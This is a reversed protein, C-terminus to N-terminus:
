SGDTGAIVPADESELGVEELWQRRLEAKGGMMLAITEQSEIADDITVQALRRTAPDLITEKLDPPNMEGLGKFRTVIGNPHKALLADREDEDQAYAYKAGTKDLKVKFLPPDSIFVRGEEIMRPFLQYFITLCLMTIHAGDDDADCALVVKGYRRMDPELIVALKRGIMERQGGLAKLIGDIEKNDFAKGNAGYVNLPKGRLPFIAQFHSNRATKMGGGASDGEVLYLEREEIPRTEHCDALKDPLGADNFFSQAESRLKKSVKGKALRVDRALLCRDLIAKSEKQNRPDTLWGNLAASVFSSVAGEVDSNNLKSKTQGEFQPNELKVSVVATLGEFVDKGVLSEEKDRKLKGQEYALRNLSRTVARRFGSVHTGGDPTSVVNAFSIMHEDDSDSWQMAVEVPVRRTDDSALQTMEDSDFRLVTKHIARRDENFEAVIQATGDKFCYSQEAKGPMRLRFRLGPVLCAKERLRREVESPIYHSGEEFITEDFLWSVTTGTKEGRKLACGKTVPEVIKGREFRASWVHGNRRVEVALWRSLANTVSAGVGHLGGSVKYGGDGFKGGAHLELFVLELASRGTQTTKAVPIGRGDDTVTLVGDEALTVIIEKCAGALAEDIANDTVEWLLHHLGTTSTSGVYMGPRVRVAELGELLRIQDADYRAAATKAPPNTTSM